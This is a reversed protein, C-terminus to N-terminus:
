VMSITQPHYPSSYIGRHFTLRYVYLFTPQHYAGEIFMNDIIFIFTIIIRYRLRSKYISKYNIDLLISFFIGFLFSFILTIIQTNLNM